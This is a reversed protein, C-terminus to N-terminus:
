DGGRKSEIPRQVNIQVLELGVKDWVRADMEGKDGVGRNHRSGLCGMFGVRDLLDGHRAELGVVLHHFAIRAVAFVHSGAQEVAAVNHGLVDMGGNSGELGLSSDLKNVPARSSELNTDAELRGLHNGVAVQSFDVTGHLNL